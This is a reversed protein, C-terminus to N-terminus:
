TIGDFRVLCIEPKDFFVDLSESLLIHIVLAELHQM